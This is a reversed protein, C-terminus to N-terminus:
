PWWSSITLLCYAKLLIGLGYLVICPFVWEKISLRLFIILGVISALESIVYTDM